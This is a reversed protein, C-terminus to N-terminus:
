RGVSKKREIMWARMLKADEKLGSSIDEADANAIAVGSDIYVRATIRSRGDGAPEIRYDGFFAALGFDTRQLKFRILIDTKRRVVNFVLDCDPDIGAKGEFKWQAVVEDASKKITRYTKAWARRGDAGDFDVLMAAVEDPTGSITYVTRGGRVGQYEVEKVPVDDAEASPSSAPGTPPPETNSAVPQKRDPDATSTTPNSEAPRSELASEPPDQDPALEVAGPTTCGVAAFVFLVALLCRVHSNRM